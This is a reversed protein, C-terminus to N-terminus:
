RALWRDIAAAARRGDEIARVVLSAGQRFDGAIFVGSLNTMGQGDLVPRYTENVAIGFGQLIEANGEKTFGM